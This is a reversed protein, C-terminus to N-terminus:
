SEVKDRRHWRMFGCDDCSYAIAELGGELAMLTSVGDLLIWKTGGCMPCMRAEDTVERGVDTLRAGASLGRLTFASARSIAKAGRYETDIM